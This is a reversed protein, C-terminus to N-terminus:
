AEGKIPSLAARAIVRCRAIIAIVEIPHEVDKAHPLPVTVIEELAELARSLDAQLADREERLRAYTEEAIANLADREAEVTELRSAMSEAAYALDALANRESGLLRNGADGSITRAERLLEELDLAQTTDPTM